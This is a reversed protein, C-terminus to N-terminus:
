TVKVRDSSMFGATDSLVRLTDRVIQERIDRLHSHALQYTKADKAIVVVSRVSGADTVVDVNYVQCVTM